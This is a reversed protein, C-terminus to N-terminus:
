LDDNVRGQGAKTLDMGLEDFAGSFLIKVVAETEKPLGTGRRVLIDVEFTM